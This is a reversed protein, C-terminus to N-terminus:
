SAAAPDPTTPADLDTDRDDRSKPQATPKVRVGILATGGLVVMTCYVPSALDPAIVALLGTVVMAPGLASLIRGGIGLPNRGIVALGLILCSVFVATLALLAVLGSVQVALSEEDGLLPQLPTVALFGIGLLFLSYTQVPRVLRVPRRATAFRAAERHVVWGLALFTVGLLAGMALTSLASGRGDDTIFTAEGTVAAIVRDVILLVINIGALGVAPWHHKQM